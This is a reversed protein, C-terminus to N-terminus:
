IIKKRKISTVVDNIARQISKSLKDFNTCYCHYAVSEAIRRAKSERLEKTFKEGLISKPKRKVQPM